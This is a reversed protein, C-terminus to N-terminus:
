AEAHNFMLRDMHDEIRRIEWNENAGRRAKLENAANTYIIDFQTGNARQRELWAALREEDAKPNQTPKQWIVLVREGTPATGEVWRIGFAEDTRVRRVRLGLLYNFTEVQPLSQEAGDASPTHLNRLADEYSELRLYKFAHSISDQAQPRGHKWKSSYVVRQIRTRLVSDFSDGREILIYRRRGGDARNLHIVAHATSGSGAFFDLITADAPVIRAGPAGDGAL